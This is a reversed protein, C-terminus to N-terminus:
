LKLKDQFDVFANEIISECKLCEDLENIIQKFLTGVDVYGGNKYTYLIPKVHNNFFIKPELGIDSYNLGVLDLINKPIHQWAKCNESLSMVRDTKINWALFGLQEAVQVCKKRDDIFIPTVKTSAHVINVGYLALCYELMKKKNDFHNGQNGPIGDWMIFDIYSWLGQSKLFEGARYASVRERHTAICVNGFRALKKILGKPIILKLKAYHGSSDKRHYAITEDFDLVIIFSGKPTLPILQKDYKGLWSRM